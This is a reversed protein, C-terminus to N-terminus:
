SSGSTGHWTRCRSPGVASRAPPHARRSRGNEHDASPTTTRGSPSPATVRATPPPPLWDTSGTRCRSGRSPRCSCRASPGAVAPQGPLVSGEQNLAAARASPVVERHLDQLAVARTPSGRLGSRRHTVQLRRVWEDAIKKPCTGHTIQVETVPHEFVVTSRTPGRVNIRERQWVNAM